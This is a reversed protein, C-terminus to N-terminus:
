SSRKTENDKIITFSPKRKMPQVLELKNQKINHYYRFDFKSKTISM